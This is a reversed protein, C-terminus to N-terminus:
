PTPEPSLAARLVEAAAQHSVEGSGDVARLAVRAADKLRAVEAKLRDVELLAGSLADLANQYNDTTM